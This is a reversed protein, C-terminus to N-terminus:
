VKSVNYLKKGDLYYEEYGNGDAWTVAPGDERHLKGDKYWFESGDKSSKAPGDKRSLNGLVNYWVEANDGNVNFSKESAWILEDKKDFGKLQKANSHLKYINM